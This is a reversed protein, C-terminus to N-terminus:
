CKEAWPFVFSLFFSSGLLASSHFTPLFCSPTLHLLWPWWHQCSLAAVWLFDQKFSTEVESTRSSAEGGLFVICIPVQVHFASIKSQQPSLGETGWLMGLKYKLLTPPVSSCRSLELTQTGVSSPASHQQQQQKQLALCDPLISQSLLNILLMISSNLHWHSFRATNLNGVMARALMFQVRYNSSHCNSLLQQYETGFVWLLLGGEHRSVRRRSRFPELTLVDKRGLRRSAWGNREEKEQNHAILVGSVNILM